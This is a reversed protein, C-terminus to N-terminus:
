NNKLRYVIPITVSLEQLDTDSPFGSYPASNKATNLAYEDFIDYGSSEKVLAFALTGDNLILMGLKVTGEWGFQKAEPPYSMTQSMKEQITRVYEEMEKPIGLYHPLAKSKSKSTTEMDPSQQVDAALQKEDMKAEDEDQTLINPTISIVLEIDTDAVPKDRSRFLAGVIPINGLFPIKKVLEGRNSKILGALIVTQGDDLFLRTQASRTVFAVDEGVANAADIDSIDISLNIDIKDGEKITPTINMGIGYQKFEVNEQTGGSSTTTTTRIPIEGGVLFSAQDGSVVLIKPASLIKGYGEELLAQFAFGLTSASSRRFKGITLFDKYGPELNPPFIEPYNVLIGDSGGTSWDIGLSKLLTTSFEAIQMDIQVLDEDAEVKTFLFISGGFREVIRNFASSKEKPVTGTLLIRGETENIEMKIGEIEVSKFLKEIRAKVENLDQKFVNIMVVRKGQNDWVFMITRGVNQAILLIEDETADVIDAVSPNQLSLRTLGDVKVSELEGRIMYVEDSYSLDDSQAYMSTPRFLILGFFVAIGVLYFKISNNRM